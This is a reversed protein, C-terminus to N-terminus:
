LALSSADSWAAIVAAFPSGVGIMMRVPSMVTVLGDASGASVRATVSLVPVNMRVSPRNLVGPAKLTAPEPWSTKVPSLAKPPVNLRMSLLMTRISPPAVTVAPTPRLVREWFASRVTLPAPLTSVTSRISM